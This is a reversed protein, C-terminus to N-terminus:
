RSWTFLGMKTLDVLDHWVSNEIKNGPVVLTKQLFM